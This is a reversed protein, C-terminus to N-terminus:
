FMNRIAYAVTIAVGLGVAVVIPTEFSGAFQTAETLIKAADLGPFM